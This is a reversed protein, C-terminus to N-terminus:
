GKLGSFTLGEILVNQYCMFIVLMPIMLVVGIGMQVNPKSRLVNETSLYERYVFINVTWYEESQIYLLPGMLDNWAMIFASVAVYLIIPKINPLTILFMRQVLNSGDIKAAEDLEKPIGRIFQMIMFINMIGGGFFAPITLPLLSDYWGIDVFIKYVPLLLLISPIMITGLGVTFIVKKGVFPIKVFAYAAMFATLPVGVVNCAVVILTNKIGSLFDTNSFVEKYTGVLNFEKPFLGAGVQTIEQTTFFSRTILIFIPFIFIITPVIYALYKLITKAITKSTAKKVSIANSNVTM